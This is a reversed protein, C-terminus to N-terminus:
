CTPHYCIFIYNNILYVFSEAFSCFSLFTFLWSLYESNYTEMSVWFQIDGYISLITQRWLYESNYTEM